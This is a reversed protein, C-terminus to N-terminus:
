SEEQLIRKEYGTLTLSGTPKGTFTSYFGLKEYFHCNREEEMITVLRWTFVEPYMTFLQTLAQSAAHKNQEEPIIFLPSIVHADRKKVVRVAGVIKGELAILWYDTEEQALQLEVKELPDLAPTTETDHYKEYLPMFASKKLQHILLADTKQALILQVPDSKTTVMKLGGTIRLLIRTRQHVISKGGPRRFSFEFGRDAM